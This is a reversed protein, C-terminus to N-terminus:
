SAAARPATEKPRSGRMSKHVQRDRLLLKGTVFTQRLHEFAEDVEDTIFMSDRDSADMMGTEVLFDFNIVKQWYSKGLLILPINRKLKRCQKLTLIEMLEDLTGVGGPAAIVAIAAYAMWFKRTFFYHFQFALAPEVYPNVGCEFPLSMGMGVSRAGPGAESAGRNAAEMMGPGGGTCLAAACLSGDHLGKLSTELHMPDESAIALPIEEMVAGIAKRAEDTQAWTMLKYALERTKAYWECAWELRQLKEIKANAAAAAAADGSAAAARAEEMRSIWTEKSMARASGFVVFHSLIGNTRLRDRVELYECLIRIQRAGRTHLWKQNDYSKIPTVSAPTQEDGSASPVNQDEALM